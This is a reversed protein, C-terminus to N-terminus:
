DELYEARTNFHRPWGTLQGDAWQKLRLEVAGRAWLHKAETLTWVGVPYTGSSQVAVWGPSVRALGMALAWLDCYLSMQIYLHWHYLVERRFGDKSADKTTKLDMVWKDAALDLRARVRLGTPIHLASIAVERRSTSIAGWQPHSRVSDAMAVAKQLEPRPAVVSTPYTKLADEFAKSKVTKCNIAVVSAPDLEDLVLSHVLTGLMTSPTYTEDENMGQPGLRALRMLRTASVDAELADYGARDLDDYVKVEAWTAALSM